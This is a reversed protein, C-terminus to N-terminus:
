EDDSDALLSADLKKTKGKAAEALGGKVAALAKENRYLWLERAPIDVTPELILRGDECKTVNFGTVEDGILKGVSLRKKGDLKLKTNTQM